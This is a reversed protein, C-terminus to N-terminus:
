VVLILTTERKKKRTAYTPKCRVTIAPESAPLRKQQQQQRQTFNNTTRLQSDLNPPEGRQICVSLCVCAGVHMYTCQSHAHTQTSTPRATKRKSM